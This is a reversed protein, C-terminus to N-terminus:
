EMTIRMDILLSLYSHRMAKVWRAPPRFRPLIVIDGEGADLDRQVGDGKVRNDEVVELLNYPQHCM